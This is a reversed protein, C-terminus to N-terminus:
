SPVEPTPRGTSSWVASARPTPRITTCRFPSVRTSRAHSPSDARVFAAFEIVTLMALTAAIAWAALTIARTVKPQRWPRDSPNNLSM